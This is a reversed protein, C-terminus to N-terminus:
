RRGRSRGALSQTKEDGGRFSLWAVSRPQQKLVQRDERTSHAAEVARWRRDRLDRLAGAAAEKEVASNGGQDVVESPAPPRMMHLYEALDPSAIDALKSPRIPPRELRNHQASLPRARASSFSTQAASASPQPIIHGLDRSPKTAVNISTSFTHTPQSTPSHGRPAKRINKEM